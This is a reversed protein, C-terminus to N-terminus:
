AVSDAVHGVCPLCVWGVCGVSYAESMGEIKQNCIAPYLGYAHCTVDGSPGRKHYVYRSERVADILHADLKDQEITGMDAKLEARSNAWATAYAEAEKAGYSYETEAFRRADARTGHRLQGDEQGNWKAESLDVMM